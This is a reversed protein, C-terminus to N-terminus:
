HETTWRHEITRAHPWGTNAAGAIMMRADHRNFDARLERYLRRADPTIDYVHVTARSPQEPDAALAGCTQCLYVNVTTHTSGYTPDYREAILDPWVRVIMPQSDTPFHDATPM